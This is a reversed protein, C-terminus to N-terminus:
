HKASPFPQCVYSLHDTLTFHSPHHSNFCASFPATMHMLLTEQVQCRMAPRWFLQCTEPLCWEGLSLLLLIVVRERTLAPNKSVKKKKKLTLIAILQFIIHM